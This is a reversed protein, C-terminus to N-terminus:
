HSRLYAQLQARTAASHHILYHVWARAQAYHVETMQSLDTLKELTQCAERDPLDTPPPPSSDSGPVPTSQEFYEALGEDLWLPLEGLSQHLLAHTCEHRLDQVLESRDYAFVMGMEGKQAFFAPRMPVGPLLHQLYREFTAQDRLIFVHIPKSRPEIGLTLQLEHPLTQLSKLVPHGSLPLEAHVEFRGLQIEVPWAYGQPRGSPEAQGGRALCLGIMLSVLGICRTRRDGWTANSSPSPSEM